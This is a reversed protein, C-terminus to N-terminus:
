LGPTRAYTPTLTTQQEGSSDEYRDGYRGSLWRGFSLFLTVRRWSSWVAFASTAGPFPDQGRILAAARDLLAKGRNADFRGLFM